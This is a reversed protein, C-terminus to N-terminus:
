DHGRGVQGAPWGQLSQAALVWSLHQLTAQEGLLVKSKWELDQEKLLCATRHNLEKLAWVKM